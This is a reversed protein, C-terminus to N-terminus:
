HVKNVQNNMMAQHFLRFYYYQGITYIVLASIIIIAPSYKLWLEVPPHKILRIMWLLLLMLTLSFSFSMTQFRIKSYGLSKAAHTFTNLPEKKEHIATRLLSPLFILMAGLYFPVLSLGFYATYVAVVLLMALTSYRATKLAKFKALNKLDRKYNTSTNM